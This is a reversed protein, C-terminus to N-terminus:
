GSSNAGAGPCEGSLQYLGRRRCGKRVWRVMSIGAAIGAALPLRVRAGGLLRQLTQTLVWGVWVGIVAM